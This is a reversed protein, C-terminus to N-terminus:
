FKLKRATSFNTANVRTRSTRPTRPSGKRVNNSELASRPNCLLIEQHFSKGPYKQDMKGAYYGDFGESCLFGAVVDDYHSKSNRIVQNKNEPIRFSKLIAKTVSPENVSMKLLRIINFVNDMRVLKLDKSTTFTKLRSTPTKLYAARAINTANNGFLYYSFNRNISPTKRGSEGRTLVTGKKIIEFEM